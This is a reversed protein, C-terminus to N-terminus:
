KAATAAAAVAVVVRYYVSGDSRESRLVQGPRLGLWRVMAEDSRARPLDDIRLHRSLRPGAGSGTIDAAIQLATAARQRPVLGELAGPACIDFQLRDCPWIEVALAPLSWPAATASNRQRKAAHADDTGNDNHPESKSEDEDDEDDEDAEKEKDAKQAETLAHAQGTAALFERLMQQQRKPLAPRAFDHVLFICLQGIPQPLKARLRTTGDIAAKCADVLLAPKGAVTDGCHVAVYLSRVAAENGASATRALHVAVALLRFPLSVDECARLPVQEHVLAEDGESRVRWMSQLTEGAVAMRRAPTRECPSITYFAQRTQM